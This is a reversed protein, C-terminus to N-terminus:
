EDSDGERPLNSSGAGGHRAEVVRFTVEADWPHDDRVLMLDDIKEMDHMNLVAEGGLKHILCKIVNIAADDPMWRVRQAM